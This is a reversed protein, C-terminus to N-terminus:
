RAEIGNIAYFLDVTPDSAYLANSGNNGIFTGEACDLDGAITALLLRVEGHSEFGQGIRVSGIKANELNLAIGSPNNFQGSVCTIPGTEANRLNVEGEARFPRRPLDSPLYDEGMYIAGTKANELNLAPGYSNSFHGNDCKVIGTVQSNFLTVEGTADIGTLMIPGTRANSIKLTPTWGKTFFSGECNVVGSVVAGSLDVLGDFFCAHLYIPGTKANALDIAYVYGVNYVGTTQSRQM